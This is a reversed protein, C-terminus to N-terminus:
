ELDIVKLAFGTENPAIWVEGEGLMMGKDRVFVTEFHSTAVIGRIRPNMVVDKAAFLQEPSRITRKAKKKLTLPYDIIRALVQIDGSRFSAKVRRFSYYAEMPDFNLNRYSTHVELPLKPRSFGAEPIEVPLEMFRRLERALFNLARYQDYGRQLEPLRSSQQGSPLSGTVETAFTEASRWGQATITGESILELQQKAIWVLEEVEALVQEHSPKYGPGRALDFPLAKLSEQLRFAKLEGSPSPPDVKYTRGYVKVFFPDAHTPVAIFTTLMCINLGLFLTSFRAMEAEM